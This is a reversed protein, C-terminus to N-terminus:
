ELIMASEAVKLIRDTLYGNTSIVVRNSKKKIVDVIDLIDDRLFPEGGTVNCFDLRPLKELTEPKIEEDPKTPHKWINCMRCRANCRYTVIISAEL